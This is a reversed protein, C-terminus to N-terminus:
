RNLMEDYGKANQEGVGSVLDRGSHVREGTDPRKVFRVVLKRTIKGGSLPPDLPTSKKNKEPSVRGRGRLVGGPCSTIPSTYCPSPPNSKGREDWGPEPNEIVADIADAGTKPVARMSEDWGPMTVAILTAGLQQAVFEGAERETSFSKCFSGPKRATWLKYGGPCSFYVHAYQTSRKGERLCWRYDIMTKLTTM